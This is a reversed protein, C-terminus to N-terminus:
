SHDMGNNEGFAMNDKELLEVTEGINWNRQTPDMRGILLLEIALVNEPFVIETYVRGCDFCCAVGFSRSTLGAGNCTCDVVWRGHNIYAERPIDIEYVDKGASVMAATHTSRYTDVDKVGNHAHGQIPGQIIPM